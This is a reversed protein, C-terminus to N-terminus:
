VHEVRQEPVDQVVARHMALVNYFLMNEGENRLLEFPPPGTLFLRYDLNELYQRLDADTYGFAKSHQSFEVILIPRFRQLTTAAGELVLREAGEVDIKIVDVRSLGRRNVYNDLTETRVTVTRDSHNMTPALSNTVDSNGLYLTASGADSSLPTNQCSVQEYGNLAVNEMLENFVAPDPEFAHVAGTSGVLGAAVLTHHGINAGVDLVVMGPKLVSRLTSVTDPEYTSSSALELGIFEFPDAVLRQGDALVFLRRCRTRTRTRLETFLWHPARPARVQWFAWLRVVLGAVRPFRNAATLIAESKRM